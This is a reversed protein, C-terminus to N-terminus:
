RLVILQITLRKWRWNFTSLDAFDVTLVLFLFPVNQVGLLMQNVEVGANAKKLNMRSKEALFLLGAHGAWVVGDENIRESM